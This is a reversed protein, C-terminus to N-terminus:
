KWYSEAKDLKIDKINPCFGCGKMEYCVGGRALCDPVLVKKFEPLKEIVLRCMEKVVQRTELSARTCLRKNAITILEEGGISWYMDVPTDQPAKNRDYTPDFTKQRDNRQSCIYPQAHVHRVLHVSVWYPINLKFIFKMERIPSHRALLISEKWDQSVPNVRKKHMTALALDKVLNWDEEGPCKVLEVTMIIQHYIIISCKEILM